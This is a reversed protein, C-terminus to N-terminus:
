DTDAIDRRPLPKPPIRAGDPGIGVRWHSAKGHLTKLLDPTETLSRFGPLAIGAENSDQRPSFPDMVAYRYGYVALSSFGRLHMAQWFRYALGRNVTIGDASSCVWLKIKRHGPDLRGVFQDALTTAALSRNDCSHIRNNGAAGHGTIYLQDDNGVDGLSMEDILACSAYKSYPGVKREEIRELFTHASAALRRDGFFPNYMFFKMTSGGHNHSHAVPIMPQCYSTLRAAAGSDRDGDSCYCGLVM